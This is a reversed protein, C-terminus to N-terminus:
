TAVVRQEAREIVFTGTYLSSLIQKVSHMWLSTTQSRMCKCCTEKQIFLAELTLQMLFYFHIRHWPMRTLAQSYLDYLMRCFCDHVVCCPLNIKITRSVNNSPFTVSKALQLFLAASLPELCYKMKHTFFDLLWESMRDQDYEQQGANHVQINLQLHEERM